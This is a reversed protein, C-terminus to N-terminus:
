GRKRARISSSCGDDDLSTIEVVGGEFSFNNTECDDPEFCFKINDGEVTYDTVIQDGDAEGDVTFDLNITLRDATFVMTGDVCFILEDILSCTEQENDLIIDTEECGIISYGIIDYTGELAPRDNDKDCSLIFLSTAFLM